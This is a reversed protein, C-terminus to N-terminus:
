FEPRYEDIRDILWSGDSGRLLLYQEDLEQAGMWTSLRAHVLVRAYPARIEDHFIRTKIYRMQLGHLLPKQTIVWDEKFGGQRFALTTLDAAKELQRPYVQLWLQVVERPSLDPHQAHALSTMGICLVLGLVFM